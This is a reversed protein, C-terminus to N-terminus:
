CFFVLKTKMCLCAIYSLLGSWSPNSFTCEDYWFNCESMSASLCLHVQELTCQFVSRRTCVYEGCREPITVEQIPSSPHVCFELQQITNKAVTAAPSSVVDAVSKGPFLRALISLIDESFPDLLLGLLLDQRAGTLNQLSQTFLEVSNRQQILVSTSQFYTKHLERAHYLLLSISGKFFMFIFGVQSWKDFGVYGQCTALVLALSITSDLVLTTSCLKHSSQRQRRHCLLINNCRPLISVGDRLFISVM